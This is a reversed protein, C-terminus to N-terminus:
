SDVDIKKVRKIGMLNSFHYRIIRAPKMIYFKLRAIGKPPMNVAFQRYGCFFHKINEKELRIGVEDDFGTLVLSDISFKERLLHILEILSETAGGYPYRDAIFLVRM